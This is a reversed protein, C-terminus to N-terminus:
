VSGRNQGRSDVKTSWQFVQVSHLSADYVVCEAKSIGVGVRLLRRVEPQAQCHRSELKNCCFLFLFSLSDTACWRSDFPTPDMVVIMSALKLIRIRLGPLRGLGTHVPLVM